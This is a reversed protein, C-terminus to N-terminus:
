KVELFLGEAEKRSPANWLIMLIEGSTRVGLWKGSETEILEQEFGRPLYRERFRAQAASAKLTDSYEVLLLSYAEDMRGYRGLVAPAAEGLELTNEGSFFTLHNLIVHSFFFHVMRPILADQPLRSVISPVEGEDDVASAVQRGLDLLTEKAEETEKEAFLSVFYRDKWFVLINENLTSGQGIGADEGDPNFSFIGFANRASGMDFFDAHIEPQGKKFYVRVLLRQFDYANYVDGARNIYKAITQPGFQQDQDQVTWGNVNLPLFRSLRGSDPGKCSAALGVLLFFIVFLYGSAQKM